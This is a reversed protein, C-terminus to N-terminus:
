LSGNRACLTLATSGSPMRLTQIGSEAPLWKQIRAHPKKGHQPGEGLTSQWQKDSVPPITMPKQQGSGLLGQAGPNQTQAKETNRSRSRM